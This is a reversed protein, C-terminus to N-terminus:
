PSLKVKSVMYWLLLILAEYLLVKIINNGHEGPRSFRPRPRLSGVRQDRLVRLGCFKDSVEGVLRPRKTPIPRERVLAVSNNTIIEM